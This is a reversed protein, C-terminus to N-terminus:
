LQGIYPQVFRHLTAADYRRLKMLRGLPGLLRPLLLRPAGHWIRELTKVDDQKPSDPLRGFPVFHLLAPAFQEWM